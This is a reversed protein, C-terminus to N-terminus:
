QGLDLESALLEKVGRRGTLELVVTHGGAPARVTFDIFPCCRSEYEVFQGVEQLTEPTRDLEFSYGNTLEHRARPAKIFRKTLEQWTSREEATFATPNCALPPEQSEVSEDTRMVGAGRHPSYALVTLGAIFVLAPAVFLVRRNRYIM